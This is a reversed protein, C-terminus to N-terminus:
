FDNAATQRGIYLDETQVNGTLEDNPLEEKDPLWVGGEQLGNIRM